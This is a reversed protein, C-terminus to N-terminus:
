VGFGLGWVRCGVGWVRGGVGSVAFWANFASRSSRSASRACSSRWRLEMADCSSSCAAARSRHTTFRTTFLTSSYKRVRIHPGACARVYTATRQLENSYTAMRQWYATFQTTFCAKVRCLTCYLVCGHTLAANRLRLIRTTLDTVVGGGRAGGRGGGGAGRGAQGRLRGTRSSTSSINDFFTSRAGNSSRKPRDIM